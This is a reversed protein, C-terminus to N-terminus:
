LDKGGIFPTFTNPKDANEFDSRTDTAKLMAGKQLFLTTKTHLTLPQSLYTGPPFLVTGGGSRDCEDLAKQIAATCLTKGDAVAGFQRVNFTKSLPAAHQRAVCATLGLALLAAPYMRGWVSRPMRLCTLNESAGPTRRIGGSEGAKAGGM